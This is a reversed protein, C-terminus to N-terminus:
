PQVPVATAAGAVITGAPIPVTPNGATFIVTETQMEQTAPLSATPSLLSGHDGAIFNVYGSGVRPTGPVVRPFNAAGVGAQVAAILRATASNPIVQDPLPPPTTAGM